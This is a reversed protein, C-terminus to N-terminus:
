FSYFLFLHGHRNTSTILGVIKGRILLTILILMLILSFDGLYIDISSILEINELVYHTLFAMKLPMYITLWTIIERM